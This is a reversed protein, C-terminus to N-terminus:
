PHNPQAGFYAYLVRPGRPADNQKSASEATVYVSNIKALVKPDDFKFAWRREKPDDDHLIGLSLTMEKSGAQEGWLHFTINKQTHAATLDYAYFVLSRGEVYFVRGFARQRKGAANSDYVDIIHLNRAAVLSGIEDPNFVPAADQSRMQTQLLDLRASYEATKARQNRLDEDALSQELRLATLQSQLDAAHSSLAASQQMLADHDRTAGSQLQSLEQRLGAETDDKAKKVAELQSGLDAIQKAFRDREATLARIRMLEANTTRLAQASPSPESVTGTATAPWTALPPTKVRVGIAFCVVCAAVALPWAQWPRLSAVLIQPLPFRREPRDGRLLPEPDNPVPEAEVPPGAHIQLGEKTALALFRERMEAPVRVNSRPTRLVRSLIKDSIFHADKLFSRCNDCDLLHQNLLDSEAPSLQGSAALVCLEEFHAHTPL